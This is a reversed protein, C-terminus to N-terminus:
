SIYWRLTVTSGPEPGTSEPFFFNGHNAFYSLFTLRRLTMALMM